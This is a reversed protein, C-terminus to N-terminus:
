GNQEDEAKEILHNNLVEWPTVKHRVAAANLLHWPWWRGSESVFGVNLNDRKAAACAIGIADALVNSQPTSLVNRFGSTSVMLECNADAAEPNDYVDGDFALLHGAYKEWMPDAQPTLVHDVLSLSVLLAYADSRARAEALKRFQGRCVAACESDATDIDSQKWAANRLMSVALENGKIAAFVIKDSTEHRKKAEIFDAETQAYTWGAIRIQKIFM